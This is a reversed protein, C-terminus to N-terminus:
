TQNEYYTLVRIVNQHQASQLINALSVEHRIYPQPTADLVINKVYECALFYKPAKTLYIRGRM